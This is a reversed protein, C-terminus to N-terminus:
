FKSNGALPAARVVRAVLVVPGLVLPPVPCAQHRAWAPQHARQRKLRLLHRLLLLRRLIQRLCWRRCAM